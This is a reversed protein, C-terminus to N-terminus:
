NTALAHYRETILQSLANVTTREQLSLATRVNADVVKTAIVSTIVPGDLRFITLGSGTRDPTSAGNRTWRSTGDIILSRHGFQIDGNRVVATSTIRGVNAFSGDPQQEPYGSTGPALCKAAASRMARMAARADQATPFQHIRQIVNMFGGGPLAGYNLYGYAGSNPIPGSQARVETNADIACVAIREDPTFAKRDPDKVPPFWPPSLTADLSLSVLADPDLARYDSASASPALSVIAGAVLILVASPAVRRLSLM